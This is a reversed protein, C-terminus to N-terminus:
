FRPVPTRHIDPKESITYLRRAGGTELDTAIQQFVEDPEGVVVHDALPLLEEPESSAYPGGIMTRKGLGRARRLIERVDDKQVQMASVMVLDAWLLDADLLDEFGRDILRIRWGEPCLAAVTVLGLPPLTTKEPLLDLM